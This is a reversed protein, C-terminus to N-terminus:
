AALEPVVAFVGHPEQSALELAREEAESRDSSTFLPKSLAGQTTERRVTYIKKM